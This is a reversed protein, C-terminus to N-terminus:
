CNKHVYTEHRRLASRRVFRKGCGCSHPRAASHTRLHTSLNTRVSLMKGCVHCKIKGGDHVGSHRKLLYKASFSAGCLECVYSSKNACHVKRIHAKLLTSTTFKRLCDQQPCTLNAVADNDIFYKKNKKDPRTQVGINGVFSMEPLCENESKTSSVNIFSTNLPEAFVKENLRYYKPGEFENSVDGFPDKENYIEQTVNEEEVTSNVFNENLFKM